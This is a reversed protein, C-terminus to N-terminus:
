SRRGKLATLAIVPLHATTGNEQERIACIVQFGDLEPMHIDLLLLDFDAAEALALTEKGNIAVRVHHGKRILRQM